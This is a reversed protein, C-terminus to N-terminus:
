FLGDWTAKYTGMGSAGLKGLQGGNWTDVFRVLEERVAAANVQVTRVASRARPNAVPRPSPFDRFAAPNAAPVVTESDVVICTALLQRSELREMASHWM